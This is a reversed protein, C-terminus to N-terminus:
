ATVEAAKTRRFGGLTLVWVWAVALYLFLLRHGSYFYAREGIAAEDDTLIAWDAAEQEMATLEKRAMTLM